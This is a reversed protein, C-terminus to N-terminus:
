RLSRELGPETRQLTALLREGRARDEEWTEDSRGSPWVEGTRRDVLALVVDPHLHEIVGIVPSGDEGVLIFHLESAPVPSAFLFTRHPDATPRIQFFLGEAHRWDSQSEIVIARDQSIFLVQVLDFSRYLPFGTYHRFALPVIAACCMVAVVAGILATPTPPRLRLRSRLLVRIM